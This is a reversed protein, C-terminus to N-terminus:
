PAAKARRIKVPQKEDMTLGREKMWQLYEAAPTGLRYRSGTRTTCIRGRASVLRTTVVAGNRGAVDGQLHLHPDVEPARYPNSPCVNTVSWNDILKAPKM